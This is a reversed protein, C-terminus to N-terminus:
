KGSRYGPHMGLLGGVELEVYHGSGRVGSPRSQHKFQSAETSSGDAMLLEDTADLKRCSECSEAMMDGMMDGSGGPVVVLVEIWADGSSM